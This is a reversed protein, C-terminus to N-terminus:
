VLGKERLKEGIAVVIDKATFRHERELEAVTGHAVFADPWGFRVDAGISEGFGGICVGNEISAILAGAARQRALLEVDFPKVFRADVVGAAIGQAALGEVVDLAKAVQDGLAWLQIRATPNVLPQARGWLDVATLDSLARFANFDRLAAHGDLTPPIGRPYRIAVPGGRQLAAALMTELEQADRPQLISLNPLCKLMPIDFMGHHTRGDQGVCGARDIAFVVPLNLICVDHMIQDVARQLFTSYIAVVPRMGAKALGAAFTVACSESIGVDHFRDAHAEAFGDLGTGDKMAAVVACVRPDADALRSLMAGFVDSWGKAVSPKIGGQRAQACDFPGVGHWQCPNLEAPQFGRGKTTIVHVVISRKDEKAVTLAAELAPLDHGDVPGIYRLGFGEFFANGLWISKVLREAAHYASRLFTLKLRHGASEASAKIRNYRVGCLLCGLFRAMAGHSRSIAMANDNIVLIIKRTQAACNNLAELTEGNSLSADGVVAVVHNSRGQRDRAVAMGLAAALASGAHGGVFADAPSEEPNTFPSIGGLRRLTGFRDRRGTLLKWAYTQHGVDWVVRDQMPDFVKALALSLEVAGLSSALHGGNRSVTSLIEARLEEPSPLSM